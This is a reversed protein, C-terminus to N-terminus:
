PREPGALLLQPRAAADRGGWKAWGARWADWQAACRAAHEKDQKAQVQPELIALRKLLVANTEEETAIRRVPGRNRATTRAAPREWAEAEAAKARPADLDGRQVLLRLLSDSYRRRRSLERGERTVVEDWGHVAREFAAQGITPAAKAIAREWARAFGPQAKRLRYASTSSIAARGCADRVCGTEGLARLFVKQRAETWGDHRIRHDPLSPNRLVLASQRAARAARAWELAADWAAAFEADRRRLQYVSAVTMGVAACSGRM